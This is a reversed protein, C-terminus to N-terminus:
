LGLTARLAKDVETIESLRGIVRDIESYHVTALNGTMVVSDMLLGSRKANESASLLIVRSRHGARDKNSTIMAVILQLLETGLLDAQVVVAPRRKASRPNSGPFMVLVVDGRRCNM